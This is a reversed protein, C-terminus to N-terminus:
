CTPPSSAESKQPRHQRWAAAARHRHPTRHVTLTRTVADDKRKLFLGEGVGQARVLLNGKGMLIEKANIKTIEMHREHLYRLPNM